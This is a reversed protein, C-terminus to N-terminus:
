LNTTLVVARLSLWRAVVSELPPRGARDGACRKASRDDRHGSVEPALRRHLPDARDRAIPGVAESGLVLHHEGQEVFHEVGVVILCLLAGQEQELEGMREVLVSIGLFMDDIRAKAFVIVGADGFQEFLFMALDLSKEM